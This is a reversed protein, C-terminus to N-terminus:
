CPYLNGAADQCTDEPYETPSTGKGGYNNVLVLLGFIAVVFLIFAIGGTYDSLESGFKSKDKTQKEM